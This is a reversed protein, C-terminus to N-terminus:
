SQGNGNEGMKIESSLYREYYFLYQQALGAHSGFRSGDKEGPYYKQLIRKVWVDLPFADGKGMGFLVICSAVKPGIGRVQCLAQMAEETPYKAIEQLDLSGDAVARAVTQLYSARYGLGLARFEDESASALREATPFDFGTALPAGYKECLRAIMGKIRPINNNQSLLFSILIEFAPQRLIRIGKGMEMAQKFHEDTEIGELHVLESRIQAYDESIGLYEKWIKDFEEPSCDYLQIKEGQKGIQLLHGM